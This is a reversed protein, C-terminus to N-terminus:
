LLTWAVGGVILALIRGIENTAGLVDGSVGGLNQHAIRVVMWASSLAAFLAIIGVMGLAFWCAMMSFVLGILFDRMTVNDVFISGLGQHMSRGFMAATVMSQKACIEAALLSFLINPKLEAIASFLILISMMCFAIGGVGVSPDRMSRIKEEVSGHTLLADGFDMLGDLHNMGTVLYLIFITLASFLYDSLFQLMFGICGVLLGIIFGVIPFLYAHSSLKQIGEVDIGVPITTLFGIGARITSLPDNM